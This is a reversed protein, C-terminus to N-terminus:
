GCFQWVLFYWVLTLPRKPLRSNSMKSYFLLHYVFYFILRHRLAQSTRFNILSGKFGKFIQSVDNIIAFSPFGWQWPLTTSAALQAQQHSWWVLQPLLGLYLHSLFNSRWWHALMNSYSFMLNIMFTCHTPKCLFVTVLTSWAFGVCLTKRGVELTIWVKLLLFSSLKSQSSKGKYM